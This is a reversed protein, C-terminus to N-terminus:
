FEHSWDLPDHEDRDSSGFFKPNWLDRSHVRGFFMQLHWQTVTSLGPRDQELGSANLSSLVQNFTVYLLSQEINESFEYQYSDPLQTREGTFQSPVLNARPFSGPAYWGHGIGLAAPTHLGAVM